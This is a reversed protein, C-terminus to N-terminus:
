FFSIQLVFCTARPFSLILKPLSALRTLVCAGFFGLSRRATLLLTFIIFSLSGLAVAFFRLSFARYIVFRHIHHRRLARLYDSTLPILGDVMVISCSIIYSVKLPLVRSIERVGNILDHLSVAHMTTDSHCLSYGINSRM